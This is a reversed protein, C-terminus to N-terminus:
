APNRDDVTRPHDTSKTLGTLIGWLGGYCAMILGILVRQPIGRSSAVRRQGGAALAATPFKRPAESVITSSGPAGLIGCLLEEICTYMCIYTHSVCTCTNINISEQPLFAPIMYTSPARPNSKSSLSLAAQFVKQTSKRVQTVPTNKKAKFLTPFPMCDIIQTEINVHIYISRERM